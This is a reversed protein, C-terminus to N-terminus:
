AVHNHGITLPLRKRARPLTREMQQYKDQTM